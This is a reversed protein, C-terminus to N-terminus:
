TCPPINSLLAVICHVIEASAQTDRIDSVIQSRLVPDLIMERRHKEAHMCHSSLDLSLSLPRPLSTSLPRSLSTSLSHTHTLTVCGYLCVCVCVCVRVCLYVSVCLYVCVCLPVRLALTDTNSEHRGRLWVALESGRTSCQTHLHREATSQLRATALVTHPCSLFSSRIPPLCPVCLAFCMYCVYCVCRVCCM